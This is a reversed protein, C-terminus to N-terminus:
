KSGGAAISYFFKNGIKEREILGKNCLDLLVERVRRDNRKCAKSLSKSTVKINKLLLERIKGMYKETAEFRPYFELGEVYRNLAERLKNQKRELGFGIRNYFNQLNEKGTINLQWYVTKEENNKIVIGKVFIKSKVNNKELIKKVDLLIKPPNSNTNERIIKPSTLAVARSNHHNFVTGDDDFLRRLLANAVKINKTKMFAAPIGFNKYNKNGATLGITELILGTVKPFIVCPTGSISRHFAFGVNGFSALMASIFSELQQLEQNFYWVRLKNKEIGGDGLIGGVILAFEPTLINIPLKPNKIKEKSKITKLEIINKQIEEEKTDTIEAVKILINLPIGSRESILYRRVYDGKPLGLAKAIKSLSDFKKFLIKLLKKRLKETLKVRIKEEPLDFLKIYQMKPKRMIFLKTIRNLVKSVSHTEPSSKLKRLELREM